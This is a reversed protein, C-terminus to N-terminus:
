PSSKSQCDTSSTKLEFCTIMNLHVTLPSVRYSKTPQSTVGKPFRDGWQQYVVAHGDMSSSPTFVLHSLEDHAMWAWLLQRRTLAEHISKAEYCKYHLKATLLVELSQCGGLRTEQVHSDLYRHEFRERNPSM